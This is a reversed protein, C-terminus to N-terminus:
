PTKNQEWFNKTYNIFIRMQVNTTTKLLDHWLEFHAKPLVINNNSVYYDPSFKFTIASNTPCEAKITISGPIPEADLKIEPSDLNTLIQCVAFKQFDSQFWVSDKQTTENFVKQSQAVPKEHEKHWDNYLLGATLVLLGVTLIILAVTLGVLWKTLKGLSKSETVLIKNQETLNKSETILMETQNTLKQTHGVLRETAQASEEARRIDLTTKARDIFPKNFPNESRTALLLGENLQALTAKNIFEDAFQERQGDSPPLNRIGAICKAFEQPSCM